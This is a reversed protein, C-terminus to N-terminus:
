VNGAGFSRSGCLSLSRVEGWSPSLTGLCLDGIPNKIKNKAWYGSIDLLMDGTRNLRPETKREEKGETGRRQEEGEGEKLTGM